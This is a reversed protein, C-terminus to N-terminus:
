DFTTHEGLMCGGVTASRTKPVGYGFSRRVAISDLENFPLDQLYSNVPHHPMSFAAWLTIRSDDSCVVEQKPWISCSGHGDARNNIAATTAAIVVNEREAIM